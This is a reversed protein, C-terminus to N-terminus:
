RLLGAASAHPFFLSGDRSQYLDIAKAAMLYGIDIRKAQEFSGNGTNELEVIEPEAFRVHIGFEEGTPECTLAIAPHRQAINQLQQFGDIAALDPEFRRM